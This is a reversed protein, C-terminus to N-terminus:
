FNWVTGFRQNFRIADTNNIFGDNNFDFAANYAGSFANNFGIADQNNVAKNGNIDGFLRHFTQTYDTALTTGPDGVLHVRTHDLLLDYVGDRISGSDM